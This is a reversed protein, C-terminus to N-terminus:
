LSVEQSTQQIGVRAEDIFTLSTGTGGLNGHLKVAHKSDIAIKM